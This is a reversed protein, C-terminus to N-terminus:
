RSHALPRTYIASQTDHSVGGRPRWTESRALSRRIPASGTRTLNSFPMSPMKRHPHGAQGGLGTQPARDQLRHLSELSRARASDRAGALENEAGHLEAEAMEM